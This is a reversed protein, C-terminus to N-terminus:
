LCSRLVRTKLVIPDDHTDQDRARASQKAAHEYIEQSQSPVVDHAVSEFSVAIQLQVQRIELTDSIRKVSNARFCDDVQYGFSVDIATLSLRPSRIQEINASDFVECVPDNLSIVSTAEYV